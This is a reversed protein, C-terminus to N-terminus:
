RSAAAGSQQPQASAQPAESKSKSSSNSSSSSSSSGSSSNGNIVTARSPNGMNNAVFASKWEDFSCKEDASSSSPQLEQQLAATVDSSTSSTATHLRSTARAALRCFPAPCKNLSQLNLLV